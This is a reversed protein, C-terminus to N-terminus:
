ARELYHERNLRLVFNTIDKLCTKEFVTEPEPYFAYQRWHAYWKIQGLSIQDELAIVDYIKTKPNQEKALGFRIYRCEVESM